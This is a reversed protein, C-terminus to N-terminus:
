TMYLMFKHCSKTTATIMELTIAVQFSIRAGYMSM